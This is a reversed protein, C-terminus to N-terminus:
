CASKAEDIRRAANRNIKKSCQRRDPVTENTRIISRCPTLGARGHFRLFFSVGIRNM